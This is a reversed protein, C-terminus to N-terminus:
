APISATARLDGHLRDGPLDPRGRGGPRAPAAPTGAETLRFISSLFRLRPCRWSEQLGHGLTHPSECCAVHWPVSNAPQRLLIKAPPTAKAQRSHRHLLCSLGHEVQDHAIGGEGISPPADIDTYLSSPNGAPGAADAPRPRGSWRHRPGAAPAARRRNRMEVHVRGQRDAQRAAVARACQQSPMAGDPSSFGLRVCSAITSFTRQGIAVPRHRLAQQRDAAVDVDAVGAEEGDIRQELDLLLHRGVDIELEHGKGLIPEIAPGAGQVEQLLRQPPSNSTTPPM